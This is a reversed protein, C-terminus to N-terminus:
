DDGGVVNKGMSLDLTGTPVSKTTKRSAAIRSTAKETTKVEAGNMIKGVTAVLPQGVVQPADVSESNRLKRELIKRSNANM